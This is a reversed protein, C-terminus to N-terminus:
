FDSRELSVEPPTLHMFSSMQYFVETHDELTIFRPCIRGSSFCPMTLLLRHAPLLYNVGIWQCYSDSDSRLDVIVDYIAGRACRVLKAEAFPPVQCHM